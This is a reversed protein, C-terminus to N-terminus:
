RNFYIKLMETIILAIDEILQRNRPVIATASYQHWATRYFFNSFSIFPTHVNQQYYKCRRLTMDRKVKLHAYKIVTQNQM